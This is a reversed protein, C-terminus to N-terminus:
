TLPRLAGYLKRYKEYVQMYEAHVTSRPTFTERELIMAAAAEQLSCFSGCAIGALMASGTGGAERTNLATVPINLIDAKMQLWVRSDAGGGSCRLAGFGIGAEKLYDLNLRMEYCIGEMFALYIESATAQLTLGTIAGRSDADMYPTAAGAFHPQVLIGTPADKWDKELEAHVDCGSKEAARVAHGGLTDIFWRILAGGTYCFAYCVYKGPIIYPVVSYGGAALKKEDYTSFVPTICETTGAGDVASNEDFVGSGVAAAVQDHSVSVIICSEPLGLEGATEKRVTGASTGTPVPESFLKPDIGAAAFIEESWRLTRIDFGMTRTALSYDIQRRGTLRYVVYDEMLCIRETKAYIEPQHTKQWMLKPLSFMRNPRSGTTSTLFAEGLEATLRTCEEGGRPDTYLLSAALPRDAADLLVYSEGFSTVGIGGIGPYKKGAEAIVQKVAELIAGPDVEEASRSRKAEYARYFRELYSGNELFVSLKCGTTGIDLGALYM